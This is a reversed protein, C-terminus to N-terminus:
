STQRKVKKILALAAEKKHEALALLAKIYGHRSSAEPHHKTVYSPDGADEDVGMAASLDNVLANGADGSIEGDDFALGEAKDARKLLTTAQKLDRHFVKGGTGTYAGAATNELGIASEIFGAADDLNPTAKPAPKAKAMISADKSAASAFGDSTWWLQLSSGVPVAASLDIEGTVTQGPGIDIPFFGFAGGSFGNSTGAWSGLTAGTISASIGTGPQATLGNLVETGRNTVSWALRDCAVQTCTDLFSATILIQSPAPTAPVAVRSPQGAHAGVPLAALGAVFVV